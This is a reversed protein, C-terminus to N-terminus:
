SPSSRLATGHARKILDEIADRNRRASRLCLRAAALDDECAADEIEDMDAVHAIQFVGAAKAVQAVRVAARHNLEENAQPDFEATPDNSLGGVNIVASCDDLHEESLERMDAVVLEVRDQFAEVPVRGFFMRDLVRVSYGRELLAEVLVCGVYGAGGIVLVKGARV